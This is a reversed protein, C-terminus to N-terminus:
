RKKYAKATKLTKYDFVGSQPIGLIEQCIKCKAKTKAGYKGDVSLATTKGDIWNLLMQVRKIQTPYTKLTSIGDGQKYYGHGNADKRGNSLSPWTGTYEKEEKQETDWAPTDYVGEVHGIQLPRSPDNGIYLIQDGVKLIEPNTIHGDKITVPVAEFYKSSYIGATNLCGGTELGIREMAKMQSSSCDSYYLGNSYKTYVYIRRPQSYYNRGIIIDYAAQYKKRLEDTMGKHRRVAAIGKHVGNRAKQAYRQSTYTYLNKKSPRGSGHGCITIDRETITMKEEQPDYKRLCYKDVVAMCDSAYDSATAYGDSKIVRLYEAPDTIGRLNKYRDLQIFEFYGEVGERMTKYVRFNARIDTKTGPTYEEKTAMNVSVGTWKSGCKLGFYNHHESALKSEGWGSELIGQAIIPSCVCIGYKPAFEKVLAALDQVFLRQKDTM